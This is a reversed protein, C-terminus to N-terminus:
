ILPGKSTSSRETSAGDRKATPLILSRSSATNACPWIICRSLKAIERQVVANLGSAHKTYNISILHISLTKSSHRERSLFRTLRWTPSTKTTKKDYRMYRRGTAFLYVDKLDSNKIAFQHIGLANLREIVAAQFAEDDGYICTGQANADVHTVGSCDAIAKPNVEADVKSTSIFNKSCNRCPVRPSSKGGTSWASWM